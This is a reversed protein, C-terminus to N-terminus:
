CAPALGIISQLAEDKSPYTHHAAVHVVSCLHQRSTFCSCYVNGFMADKGGVEWGTAENDTCEHDIARCSTGGRSCNKSEESTRPM